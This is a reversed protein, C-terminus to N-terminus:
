LSKLFSINDNTHNVFRLHELIFMKEQENCTFIHSWLFTTLYQSLYEEDIDLIYINDFCFSFSFLGYNQDLLYNITLRIQHEEKKGVKNLESIKYTLKDKCPILDQILRIITNIHSMIMERDLPKDLKKKKRM